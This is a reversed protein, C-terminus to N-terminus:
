RLRAEWCLPRGEAGEGSIHFSVGAAEGPRGGLPLAFRAWGDGDRHRLAGLEEEGARIALGVPAAGGDREHLYPLGMHGVVFAGPPVGRVRVVLERWPAPPPPAYVCRRPRHGLDDIVTVAVSHRPEEDCVYRRAPLGPQGWPAHVPAEAFACDVSDGNELAWIVEARGAEIADVFDFVFREPAPNEWLRLALRGEGWASLLRWGAFAEDSGGRAAVELARAYGSEDPRAVDRLPMLAEGFALRAHPEAWRPSAVVLDGERRRGEVSPRARAWDLEDPARAAIALHLALELPGLALVGFAALALLRSPRV